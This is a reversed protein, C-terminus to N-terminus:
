LVYVLDLGEGEVLDEGDEGEDHGDEQYEDIEARLLDDGQDGAELVLEEDLLM